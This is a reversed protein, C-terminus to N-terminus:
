GERAVLGTQTSNVAIANARLYEQYVEYAAKAESEVEYRIVFAIMTDLQATSASKHFYMASVGTTNAGFKLVNEPLSRYTERLVSDSLFYRESNPVQDKQSLLKLLFPKQSPADKIRNATAKALAKMGETIAGAFEYGEIQVFYKGKRFSLFDGSLIAKSGVWEFNDQPYRNFSYLGFANEPSRMDFIEVLILPSSGLQPTQYEVNAQEVFGYTRYLEANGGLVDNYLNERTYSSPKRSRVWHSAEKDAPLLDIPRATTSISLPNIQPSESACAQVIQHSLKEAAKATRANWVGYVYHGYQNVATYNGQETHCSLFFLPYFAHFIWLALWWRELKWLELKRIEKQMKGSNLLSAISIM